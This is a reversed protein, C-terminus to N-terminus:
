KICGCKNWHSKLNLLLQRLLSLDNYTCVSMFGHMGASTSWIVKFISRIWLWLGVAALPSILDHSGSTDGAWAAIAGKETRLHVETYEIFCLPSISERYSNQNVTYIVKYARGLLYTWIERDREGHRWGTESEWTWMVKCCATKFINMNYNLYKYSHVKLYTSQHLEPM